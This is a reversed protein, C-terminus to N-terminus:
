TIPKKRVFDEEWTIFSQYFLRDEEEIGRTIGTIHSSTAGFAEVAYFVTKEPNTDDCCTYFDLAGYACELWTHTAIHSESIM